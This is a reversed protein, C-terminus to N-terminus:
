RDFPVINIAVPKNPLVSLYHARLLTLSYFNPEPIPSVARPNLNWSQWEDALIDLVPM